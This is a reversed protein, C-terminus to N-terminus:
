WDTKTLVTIEIKLQNKTKTKRLKRLTTFVFASYFVIFSISITDTHSQTHSEKPLQLRDIHFINALNGFLDLTLCNDFFLISITSKDSM